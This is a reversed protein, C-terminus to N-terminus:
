RTTLEFQIVNSVEPIDDSAEYGLETETNYKAPITEQGNVVKSVRVRYFGLYIGPFDADHGTMAASGFEDTEGSCTTFADGLFDEPEFTVTAGVLPKGNLTVETAGNIITTPATDWYQIRAAIEDASVMGDNDTDVRSAGAAIGPCQKLETSDLKGDSNTDYKAMAQNASERPTRPPREPPRGFRSCSCSGMLLLSALLPFACWRVSNM